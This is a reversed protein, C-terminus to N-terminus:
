MIEISFYYFDYEENTHEKRVVLSLEKSMDLKNNFRASNVFGNNYAATCVGYSHFPEFIFQYVSAQKSGIPVLTSDQTAALANCPSFAGFNGPDAIQFSNTNTGDSIGVAPDSDVNAPKPKLGVTIKITSHTEITGLPIGLVETRAFGRGIHILRDSVSVSSHLAPAYNRINDPTIIFGKTGSFLQM